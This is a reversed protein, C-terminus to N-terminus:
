NSEDHQASGRCDAGRGSGVLFGGPITIGMWDACDRAQAPTRPGPVVHSVAPHLVPFQLAAAGLPIGFDECVGDIFLAREKIEKPAANHRYRTGGALIGTNFPAGVMVRVGRCSLGSPARAAGAPRAAHLLRRHPLADIGGHLLAALCVAPDNVGVGVAGIVGANKLQLLVPLTEAMAEAFLRPQDQGFNSPDIDHIYVTDLREVELRSRSEEIM